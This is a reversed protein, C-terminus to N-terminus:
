GNGRVVQEFKPENGYVPQEIWDENDRFWGLYIEDFEDRRDAIAVGLLRLAQNIADDEHSPELLVKGEKAFVACQAGDGGFYDTEFYVIGRGGSHALLLEGIKPSLYQFHEDSLASERREEVADYLEEILPLLCLGHSLEVVKSFGYKNQIRELNAKEAVFAEVCHGM